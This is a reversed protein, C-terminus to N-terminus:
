EAEIGCLSERLWCTGPCDNLRRAAKLFYDSMCGTLIEILKSDDFVTVNNMESLIYIINESAYASLDVVPLFSM